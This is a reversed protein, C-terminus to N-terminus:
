SNSKSSSLFNHFLLVTCVELPLLNTAAQSTHVLISVPAVWWFHVKMTHGFRDAREELIVLGLKQERSRRGYRM